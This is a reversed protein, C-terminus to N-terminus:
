HSNRCNTTKFTNQLAERKKYLNHIFSSNDSWFDLFPTPCYYENEVLKELETRLFACLEPATDERNFCTMIFCMAWSKCSKEYVQPSVGRTNLLEGRYANEWANYDGDNSFEILHEQANEAIKIKIENESYLNLIKTLENYCPRVNKPIRLPSPLSTQAKHYYKAIDWALLASLCALLVYYDNAFITVVYLGALILTVILRKITIHKYYDVDRGDLRLSNLYKILAVITAIAFALAFVILSIGFGSESFVGMAFIAIVVATLLLEM